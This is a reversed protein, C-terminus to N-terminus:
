KKLRYGLAPKTKTKIEVTKILEQEILSEIIDNLENVRCKMYRHIKRRSLMQNPSEGIRQIVRLCQAHFSNEAVYTKALYLQRRTQHM